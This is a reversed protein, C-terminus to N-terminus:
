GQTRKLGENSLKSMGEPSNENTRSIQSSQDDRGHACYCWLPFNNKKQKSLMQIQEHAPLERNFPSQKSGRDVAKRLFQPPSISSRPVVGQCGPHLRPYDNELGLGQTPLSCHSPGAVPLVWEPARPLPRKKLPPAPSSIWRATTDIASPNLPSGTTLRGANRGKYLNYSNHSGKM